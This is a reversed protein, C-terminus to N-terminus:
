HLTNSEPDVKAQNQEFLWNTADGIIQALLVMEMNKSDGTNKKWKELTYQARLKQRGHDVTKRIDANSAAYSDLMYLTLMLIVPDKCDMLRLLAEQASVFEKLQMLAFAHNWRIWERNEVKPDDLFRGFYKKSEEPSNKLLYPIGFQLAFKKQLEPKKEAVLLELKEIAPISSTILYTNVLMKLYNQRFRSKQYIQEELFAILESWNEKELLNFLRWNGIFYSNILVLTILFLAAALRNKSALIAFYDGGLLVLPMLFIFLFSVVIVANFIIFITKFKM